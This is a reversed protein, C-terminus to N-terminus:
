TKSSTHSHSLHHLKKYYHINEKPLVKGRGGIVLALRLKMPAGFVRMQESIQVALERKSINKLDTVEHLAM